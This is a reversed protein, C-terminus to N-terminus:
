QRRRKKIWHRLSRSTPAPKPQSLQLVVKPKPGPKPPRIRLTVRLRNTKVVIDELCECCQSRGCEDGEPRKRKQDQPQNSKPNATNKAAAAKLAKTSNHDVAIVRQRRERDLVKDCLEDFDFELLMGSTAKGRSDLIIEVFSDYSSPLGHLFTTTIIWQSITSELEILSIKAKKITEVRDTINKCSGTLHSETYAM